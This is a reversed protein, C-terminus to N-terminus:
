TSAELRSILTLIEEHLGFAEKERNTNRKPLRATNNAVQKGRRESDQTAREPFAARQKKDKWQQIFEPDDEAIKAMDQAVEPSSFGLMKAAHFKEQYEQTAQERKQREEAERERRVKGFEIAELWESEPEYSFGKPLLEVAADIPRLFIYEERGNQKQPVWKNKRLKHVLTSAATKCGYLSNSRYRAELFKNHLENM